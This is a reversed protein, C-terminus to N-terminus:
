CVRGQVYVSGDQGYVALCPALEVTLVIIAWVAIGTAREDDHRHTKCGGATKVPSLVLCSRM